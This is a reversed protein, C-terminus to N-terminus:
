NEKTRAELADLDREAYLRHDWEENLVICLCEILPFDEIAAALGARHLTM